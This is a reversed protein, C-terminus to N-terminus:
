EAKAEEAEDEDDDEDEDDWETLGVEPYPLPTNSRVYMESSFLVDAKRKSGEEQAKGISQICEAKLFRFKEQLQAVEAEMKAKQEAETKAKEEAEKMNHLAKFHEQELATYNATASEMVEAMAKNHEAEMVLKRSIHRFIQGSFMEDWAEEPEDIEVVQPPQTLEERAASSSDASQTAQELAIVEFVVRRPKKAQAGQKAKGKGKSKKRMLEYPNIPPAMESVEGTPNLDPHKPLIPTTALQAVFLTTPEVRVEKTLDELNVPTEPVELQSPVPHGFKNRCSSGGIFWNGAVVLWDNDYGKNSSLLGNVLKINVNRARVRGEVVSMVPILIEDRNLLRLDNSKCYKLRVDNSVQYKERFVRM